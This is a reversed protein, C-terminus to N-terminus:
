LVVRLLSIIAGVQRWDANAPVDGCTTVLVPQLQKITNGVSAMLGNSDSGGDFAATPLAIGTATAQSRWTAAPLLEVASLVPCLVCEWSRSCILELTEATVNPDSLLLVPLAEYFRTVNFVPDLLGGWFECTQADPLPLVEEVLFVVDAGAEVFYKCVAATIEAAFEVEDQWVPGEQSVLSGFFRRVLTLPGTVRVLLAPEDKMMLKLRRVVEAAIKIRGKGLINETPGLARRLTEVDTSNAGNALTPGDPRWEVACGIAEAELFPDFYCALGDIKLTTRIQRLTSAIKTPNSFFDQPSLSELRSGLSFLVPVLWPHAPPEGRLFAKVSSRVSGEETM